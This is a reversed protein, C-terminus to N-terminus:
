LPTFYIATILQLGSGADGNISQTVRFETANFAASIVKVNTSTISNISSGTTLVAISRIDVTYDQAGSTVWYRGPVVVFGTDSLIEAPTVQSDSGTWVTIPTRANIHDDLIVKNADQVDKLVKGQAVTLAKTTDTSTLVNGLQLTGPQATSGADVSLTLNSSLDGGGNLTGTTSITRTLPTFVSDNQTNTRAQAAGTGAEIVNFATRAGAATASGTGGGSISILQITEISSTLRKFLKSVNDYLMLGEPRDTFTGGNQGMSAAYTDKDGLNSLVNVHNPDSNNPENWSAM